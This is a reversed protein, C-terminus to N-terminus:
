PTDLHKNHIANALFLFQNLSSSAPSKHRTPPIFDKSLYVDPDQQKDPVSTNVSVETDMLRRMHNNDCPNASGLQAQRILTLDADTCFPTRSDQDLGSNALGNIFSSFAFTTNSVLTDTTQRCADSPQQNNYGAVAHVIDTTITRALFKERSCACHTGEGDHFLLQLFPEGPHLTINSETDNTIFIKDIYM